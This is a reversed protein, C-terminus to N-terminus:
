LAAEPIFGFSTQIPYGCTCGSSSEPLVIIGGAPIINLWCGPRNVRTLPEGFTKEVNIPYMRPNSGRGYLYHLSATLGGCGNGGRDLVYAKQEGTQLDFEFPDSFIRNGIIVPHQWQEGHSGGTPDGNQCSSHWKPAGTAADFGYLDYQVKDGVNDTGTALLVGHANNLYMIQEFPFQFPTQWLKKGTKADLAVLATDSACFWDVRLRGDDDELAKPSESQVFYIRGDGLSIGNNMLVGKEHTWRVKGTNRDLAFLYSSALMPRFDGEIMLAITPKSFERLSAGARMGTGFLVDDQMDLYGWDRREKELQPAELIFQRAGTVPDVAWCEGEVAVYLYDDTALMHGCNRLAGVRRSNPVHLKWLNTGNYPDVAIVLDNAPVFLRGNKFLSSMPRHHRDIMERPGPEGFWLIHM